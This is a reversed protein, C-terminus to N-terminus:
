PRMWTSGGDGSYRTVEVEEFGISTLLQGVLLELQRPHMEHLFTLLEEEVKANHASIDADLSGKSSKAALGFQARGTARFRSPSGPEQAQKVAMYLQAGMTAEPTKGTIELLGQALARKTIERYHLPQGAEQLVHEAADLYTM